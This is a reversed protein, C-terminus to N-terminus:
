HRGTESSDAIRQRLITVFPGSRCGVSFLPSGTWAPISATELIVADVGLEDLGEAVKEPDDASLTEDLRLKATEFEEPTAGFLLAHRRDVVVLRRRLWYASLKAVTDPETAVVTSAPTRENIWNATAVLDPSTPWFLFGELTAGVVAYSTGLLSVFLAGIAAIRARDRLIGWASVAFPAALAWVLLMSRAYLNNPGGVPPRVFTVLVLITAAVLAASRQASSLGNWRRALGVAALLGIIGLEFLYLVPTDLLRSWWADGLLSTVLAGNQWRGAGSVHFTLLQNSAGALVYLVPAALVTSLASVALWRRPPVSSTARGRRRVTGAIWGVAVGAATALAVYASIAPLAAFLVAPTVIHGIRRDGSSSRWVFHLGLLALLVAAVHQPAWITAVYPASFSREDHHIWYDLNTSPVVDRLWALDLESLGSRFLNGITDLGVVLLDFGALFTGAIATLIAERRTGTLPKAVCYLVVPVAAATAMTLALLIPYITVELNAARDISAAILHFGYYYPAEADTALFPNSPPFAADTALSVAVRIHKYWDTMGMRHVGDSHVWGFPLFPISVLACNVLAAASIWLSSARSWGDQGDAPVPTAERDRRAGPVLIVLIASAAPASLVLVSGSPGLVFGSTWVALCSLAIGAYCGAATEIRDSVTEPWLRRVVQSMAFAPVVLLSLAAGIGRVVARDSAAMLVALLTAVAIAALARRRRM